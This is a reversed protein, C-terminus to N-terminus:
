DIILHAHPNCEMSKDLRKRKKSREEEVFRYGKHVGVFNCHTTDSSCCHDLAEKSLKLARSCNSDFILNGVITICHQTGGDSAELSLVTPFITRDELINFKSDYVKKPVLWKCHKRMIELLANWNYLGEATNASFESARLAIVNAAERVNLFHLASAFSSFLCTADKGQRYQIIPYTADILEHGDDTKPAGPPVFFFYNKKELAKSRVLEVYAHCFNEKVWEDDLRQRSEDALVGKYYNGATYEGKL